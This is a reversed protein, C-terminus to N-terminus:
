QHHPLEAPPQHHPLEALFTDVAAEWKGQARLILELCDRAAGQGPLRSTTYRALAAVEPPAGPVTMPLGALRLAPLDNLDDGLYAVQSLRLGFRAAFERLASAKDTARQFLLDVELEGARREVLSSRRGSIWALRLGAAKAVRFGLGDLVSFGRAEGGDDQYYVTGDTLCGDVDSAFARLRRLAQDLSAM